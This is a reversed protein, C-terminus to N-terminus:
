GTGNCKPLELELIRDVIEPGALAVAVQDFLYYDDQSVPFVVPRAGLRELDSILKGGPEAHRGRHVFLIVVDVGRLGADQMVEAFFPKTNEECDSIIVVSDPRFGKDLAHQLGVGISTWGDARIERLAEEWDKLTSGQPTVDIARDNVAVAMFPGRLLPGVRAGFEKAAQIAPSMSGSRDVLLLVPHTVGKQRVVARERVEQILVEVEEDEGEVISRRHMTSAVSVEKAQALKRAYVERGEPLKLLGVREVWRRANLAEVPTMSELIAMLGAPSWPIRMSTIVPFPIRAELMELLEEKGLPRENALRGMRKLVACRTGEPPEGFLFAHAAPFDSPRFHFRKWAEKLRRRNRLVVGDLRPLDQELASLWDVLLKRMVRRAKPRSNAIFSEVRLIEHPPLGPVGCGPYVDEGLAVCRGAERYRKDPAQLLVVAGADRLDRIVNGSEPMSLWVCARATFYPDRELAERLAKVPEDLKKHPVTWLSRYLERRAVSLETM